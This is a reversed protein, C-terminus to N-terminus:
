SEGESTEMWSVRWGQIAALPELAERVQRRARNFRSGVTGEPIGLAVAVEAYTLDAWGILLLVDRDRPQLGRLANAVHPVIRAIDAHEEFRPEVIAELTGAQRAYAAFQARESRLEHRLLNSAIGYLWPRADHRSVDYRRRTTFAQAFTEAALDDGTERGVRRHLYRRIADYHREFVTEFLRPEELSAGILDADTSGAPEPM